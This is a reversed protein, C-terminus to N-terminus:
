HNRQTGQLEKKIEEIEVQTIKTNKMICNKKNMLKTADMYTRCEPNRQRWVEGEQLKSHPVTQLVYCWIFERTEEKTWAM